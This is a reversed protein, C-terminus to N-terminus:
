WNKSVVNDINKEAEIEKSQIEIDFQYSLAQAYIMELDGELQRIIESYVPSKSFEFWDKKLNFLNKQKKADEILNKMDTYAKKATIYLAIGHNAKYQVLTDSYPSVYKFVFM